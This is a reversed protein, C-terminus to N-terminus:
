TGSRDSMQLRAGGCPRWALVCWSAQRLTVRAMPRSATQNENMSDGDSASAPRGFHCARTYLAYGPNRKLPSSGSRWRRRTGANARDHRLRWSGPRTWPRPEPPKILCQGLSFWHVKIKSINLCCLEACTQGRKLLKHAAAVIVLPETVYSALALVAM